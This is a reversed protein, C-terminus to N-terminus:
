GATAAMGIAVLTSGVNGNGSAEWMEGTGRDRRQARAARARAGGPPQAAGAEGARGPGAPAGAAPLPGPQRPLAPTGSGPEPSHAHRPAVPPQVAGAQQLHSPAFSSSPVPSRATTPARADRVRGRHLVLAFSSAAKTLSLELVVSNNILFECDRM